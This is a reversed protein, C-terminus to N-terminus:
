FAFTVRKVNVKDSINYESTSKGLSFAKQCCQKRLFNVIKRYSFLYKDLNVLCFQNAKSQLKTEESYM